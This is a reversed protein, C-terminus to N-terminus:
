RVIRNEYSLTDPHGRDDDSTADGTRRRGHRELVDPHLRDDELAAGVRSGVSPEYKVTAGFPRSASSRSPTRSRARSSPNGDVVLAMYPAVPRSSPSSLRPRAAGPRTPRRERRLAREEGGPQEVLGLTPPDLDPPAGLHDVHGAVGVTRRDGQGAALPQGGVEDDARVTHARLYTLGDVGCRRRSAVDPRVLKPPM